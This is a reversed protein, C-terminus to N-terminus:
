PRGPTRCPASPTGGTRAPSTSARRRPRLLLVASFLLLGPAASCGGTGHIAVAPDQPGPAALSTVRETREAPELWRACLYTDPWGGGLDEREYFRVCTQGALAGTTSWSLAYEAGKPLCLFDDSWSAHDDFPASLGVCDMASLAGHSSFRPLLLPDNTCLYDDAWGHRDDPDGVAVCNSGENPGDASFTFLGSSFDNVPEACMFNDGWSGARDSWEFWRTCSQGELPGASHFTFRVPSQPPVCLFNDAWAAPDHEASENVPACEFDNLPGAFSWRMGLKLEPKACFFNDNWTNPDSPENVNVCDLEAPAGNGAFTFDGDSFVLRPAYCLHNDSWSHPDSPENWQVCTQGAIPGANNWSLALPSQPPVCMFDNSWASANPEASETVNTCEMGAIPGDASWRLGWDNATCVFNDSWSNPDGPENVNVCTTNANPGDCSFTLEGASRDCSCTLRAQIFAYPDYTTGSAYGGATPAITLHLHPGTTCTGTSGVRGVHQGMGVRTGIALPSQELMHAYGSFYGDDHQLVVVNGLCSSYTKVVVTGESM